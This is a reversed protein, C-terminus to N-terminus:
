RGGVARCWRVAGVWLGSVTATSGATSRDAASRLGEPVVRFAAWQGPPDKARGPGTM